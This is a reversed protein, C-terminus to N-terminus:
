IGEHAADAAGDMRWPRAAMLCSDPSGPRRMGAQSKARTRALGGSRKDAVDGLQKQQELISRVTQM